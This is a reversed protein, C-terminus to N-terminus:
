FLMTKIEIRRQKENPLSSRIKELALLVKHIRTEPKILCMKTLSDLALIYNGTIGYFITLKFLFNKPHTNSETM